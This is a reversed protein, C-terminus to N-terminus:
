SSRSAPQTKCGRILHASRKRLVAVVRQAERESPTLLPNVPEDRAHTDPTSM